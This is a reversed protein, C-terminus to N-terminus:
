PRTPLMVGVRDGVEFGKEKLLGAVHASAGDLMAYSLEADDLKLAIAEPDRQASDILNQALNASM